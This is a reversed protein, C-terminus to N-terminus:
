LKKACFDIQGFKSTLRPWKNPIYSSFNYTLIQFFFYKGLNCCSTHIKRDIISVSVEGMVRRGIRIMLMCTEPLVLTPFKAFWERPLCLHTTLKEVCKLFSGWGIILILKLKQPQGFLPVFWDDWKQFFFFWQGVKFVYLTRYDSDFSTNNWIFTPVKKFNKIHFKKRHIIIVNIWFGLTILDNELSM